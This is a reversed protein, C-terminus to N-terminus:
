ELPFCYTQKVTKYSQKERRKSIEEKESSNTDEGEIELEDYIHM